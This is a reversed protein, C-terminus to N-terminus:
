EPYVDLEGSFCHFVKNPTEILLEGEPGLGTLIGEILDGDKVATGACSLGQYFRVKCGKKYLRSQIDETWAPNELTTKIEQLIVPLFDVPAPCEERLIQYLSTAKEKLGLPFDQQLLNCGIGALLFSGTKECVMGATKKGNLMIDNPWKIEIKTEPNKIFHRFANATALGIKLTFCHFYKESLILTFLLNKNRSDEWKRGELRGRGQTQTGAFIVTGPPFGLKILKRAEDMTSTTEKVYYVPQGGFPNKIKKSFDQYEEPIINFNQM